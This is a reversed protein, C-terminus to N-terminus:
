LPNQLLGLLAWPVAVAPSPEARVWGVGLGPNFGTKVGPVKLLPHLAAESLCRLELRLSPYLLRHEHISFM